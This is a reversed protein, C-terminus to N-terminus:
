RQHKEEVKKYGTPVEFGDAPLADLSVSKVESYSSFLVGEENPKSDAAVQRAIKNAILGSLSTPPPEPEPEPKKQATSDPKVQWKVETVIPYGEVKAMEKGVQELKAGTEKSDLGYMATLMGAGLRETEEPSLGLGLKQALKKSFEAEIERAKKLQDTLPTNWLDTTMLQTVQSKSATDELVLEWTILYEKCAFGNISKAAGTEKVKLESKVIKFPKSQNPGSQKTEGTVEQGAPMAIPRETYTQKPPNLEWILDKDLRTIVIKPQPKGAFAGAIGGVMKVTQDESHMDGQYANRSSVETTGIGTLLTARTLTETKLDAFALGAALTGLVLLVAFTSKVIAGKSRNYAV